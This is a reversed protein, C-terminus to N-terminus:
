CTSCPIQHHLLFLLFHPCSKTQQKKPYRKNEKPSLSLSLSLSLGTSTVPLTHNKQALHLPPCHTPRTSFESSSDFLFFFTLPHFFLMSLLLLHLHTPALQQYSCCGTTTTPSSISNRVKNNAYNKICGSTM